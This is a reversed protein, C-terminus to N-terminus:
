RGVRVMREKGQMDKKITVQAYGATRFLAAVQAGIDEHIELYLRGGPLLHEKGFDAIIRYFLLTDTDPVFLAKHPEWALVNNRLSSQDGEPIYPPNSVIIDFQGLQSRESANLFDVLRFEIPAEHAVANETAVFLADSCVDIATIYAGPLKKQLAIPICGSGTGIDLIHITNPTRHVDSPSDPRVDYMTSRVDDIVWEVLEETEPRPILVHQNVTFRLGAFWAEGLVYQVPEEQELRTAYRELLEEQPISLPVDKNVVRDIRSWGTIKELVMDTIQGAERDDYCSLLRFQLRLRAEHITM